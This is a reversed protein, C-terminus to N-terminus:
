EKKFNYQDFVVLEQKHRRRNRLVAFCVLMLCGTTGIFVWFAYGALRNTWEPRNRHIIIPLTAIHFSAREQDFHTVTYLYKEWHRRGSRDDFPVVRFQGAADTVFFNSWGSGEATVKVTAGALPHTRYLVQMTYERHPRQYGGGMRYQDPSLAPGIELAMEDPDFFFFAPSTGPRGNDQYHGVMAKAYLHVQERRGDGNVDHQGGLIHGGLLYRGNIDLDEPIAVTYQRPQDAPVVHKIGGDPDRILMKKALPAFDSGSALSSFPDSITAFRLELHKPGNRVTRSLAREERIQRWDLNEKDYRYIHLEEDLLQWHCITLNDIAAAPIALVMSLASLSIIRILCQM